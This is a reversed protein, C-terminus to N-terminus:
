NNNSFLLNIQMFEILNRLKFDTKEQTEFIYTKYLGFCFYFLDHDHDHLDQSINKCSFNRYSLIM